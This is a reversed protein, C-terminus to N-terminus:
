RLPRLYGACTGYGRGNEDTAWNQATSRGFRSAIKESEYPMLDCRLFYTTMKHQSPLTCMDEDAGIKDLTRKVTDDFYHPMEGSNPTTGWVNTYAQQNSTSRTFIM